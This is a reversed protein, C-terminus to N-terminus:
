FYYKIQDKSLSEFNNIIYKALPIISSHLLLPNLQKLILYDNILHISNKILPYCILNIYFLLLSM